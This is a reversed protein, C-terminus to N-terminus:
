PGGGRSRAFRPGLIFETRAVWTFHARAKCFSIDFGSEGGTHADTQTVRM